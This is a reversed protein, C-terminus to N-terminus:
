GNASIFCQHPRMKIEVRVCCYGAAAFGALLYGDELIPISFAGFSRISSLLRGTATSLWVLYLSPQMPIWTVGYDYGGDELFRVMALVGFAV